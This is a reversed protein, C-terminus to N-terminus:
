AFRHTTINNNNNIYLQWHIPKLFSVLISKVLGMSYTGFMICQVTM